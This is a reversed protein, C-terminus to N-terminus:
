EEKPQCSKLGMAELAQRVSEKHYALYEKEQESLEFSKSDIKLDSVQNKDKM